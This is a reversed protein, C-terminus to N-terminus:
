ATEGAPRVSFFTAWKQFFTIHSKKLLPGSKVIEGGSAVMQWQKAYINVLVTYKHLYSLNFRTEIQRMQLCEKRKWM